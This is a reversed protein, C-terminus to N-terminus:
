FYQQQVPRVAFDHERKLARSIGEGLNDDLMDRTLRLFRVTNSQQIALSNDVLVVVNPIDTLRFASTQEGCDMIVDHLEHYPHNNYLVCLQM